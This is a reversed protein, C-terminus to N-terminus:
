SPTSRRASMIRLAFPISLRARHGDDGVSLALRTQCLHQIAGAAGPSVQRPEAFGNGLPGNVWVEEGEALGDLAATLLDQASIGAYAGGSRAFPIRNGGLVVADRPLSPSTTM